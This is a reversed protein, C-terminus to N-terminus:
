GNSFDVIAATRKVQYDWGTKGVFRLMKTSYHGSATVTVQTTAVDIEIHLEPWNQEAAKYIAEKAQPADVIIMQDQVVNQSVGIRALTWAAGSTQSRATNFMAGDYVLGAFGGLLVSILIAVWITVAGRQGNKVSRQTGLPLRLWNHYDARHYIRLHTKTKVVRFLSKGM